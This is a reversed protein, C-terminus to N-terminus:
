PQHKTGQKLHKAMVRIPRLAPHYLWKGQLELPASARCQPKWVPIKEPLLNELMATWRRAMAQTSHSQRVGDIAGASLAARRIPAGALDTLATIFGVEDHIGVRIGTGENVVESIGSPLDSVVPVLGEGMAELLSLPLGEYDSCLFYTDHEALVRPVKQYPISGLFRVKDSYTFQSKLYELDCGDGAITWELDAGSELTARMIRAMMSVRKQEEIVRGLYLIRLTGSGSRPKALPPMPVGYPQHIVPIRRDGLRREMKRCIEQSVGAVADLWPLYRSVLQYVCEDDSQIMGIRLCGAPVFRLFDFSGGSLAAVVARPTFRACEHYLDEIREEHLVSSKRPGLVPLGHSRIQDSIEGGDRLQAAIGHWAGSDRLGVCINLAFTSTGGLPLTESLFIINKTDRDM